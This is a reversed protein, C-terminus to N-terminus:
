IGAARPTGERLSSLCRGAEWTGGKAGGCPYIWDGREALIVDSGKFWRAVSSHIKKIHHRWMSNTCIVVLIFSSSTVTFSLLHVHFAM